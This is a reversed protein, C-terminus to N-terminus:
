RWPVVMPDNRMPVDPGAVPRPPQDAATEGRAYRSMRSKRHGKGSLETLAYVLADVRDPSPGEGPVWTTAQEELAAFQVAPGVTHVRGQEFLAVIPEARLAKGRSAHVLRVPLNASVARLTQEVLAQGQNSEAIVRSAQWKEHAVVVRSAWKKPSGRVSEDALIYFRADPGDGAVGAVVIGCLDGKGHASVSPDVAVVVRSLEPAEEVRNMDFMELTFLAGEVDELLEGALEQRGLRTGEYRERLERLASPSLNDANEWTSGRTVVVSGDTRGLLEKVLPIPRPTTTVCALAPDLRLSPMLAEHWVADARRWTAIEDCWVARFSHGRLRDPEDASKLYLRSGNSLLLEGLSRSYKVVEGRQAVERVGSSGEIAVDRGSGFTGALICYDGPTTM